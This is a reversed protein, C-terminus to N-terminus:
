NLGQKFTAAWSHIKDGQWSLSRDLVRCFNVKSDYYSGYDLFVLCANRAKLTPELAKVQLGSRRCELVLSVTARQTKLWTEHQELGCLQAELERKVKEAGMRTGNGWSSFNQYGGKDRSLALTVLSLDERVQELDRCRFHLNICVCSKM